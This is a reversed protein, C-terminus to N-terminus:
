IRSCAGYLLRLLSPVPRSDAAGQEGRGREEGGLGTCEGWHKIYWGLAALVQGQRLAM